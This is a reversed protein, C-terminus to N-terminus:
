TLSFDRRMFSTTAYNAAAEEPFNKGALSLSAQKVLEQLYQIMLDQAIFDSVQLLYTASMGMSQANTLYKLVPVSTTNVFGKEQDTLATDDVLKNQM